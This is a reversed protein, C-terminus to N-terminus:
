SVGRRSSLSSSPVKALLCGVDLGNGRLVEEDEVEAGLASQSSKEFSPNPSAGSVAVLSSRCNDGRSKGKGRDRVGDATSGITGSRGDSLSTAVRSSRISIMSAKKGKTSSECSSLVLEVNLLIRRTRSNVVAARSSLSSDDISHSRRETM